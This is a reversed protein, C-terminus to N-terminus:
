QARVELASNPRGIQAAALLAGRRRAERASLRWGGWPSPRGLVSWEQFAVYAVGGILLVACLRGNLSAALLARGLYEPVGGTPISNQVCHELLVAAVCVTVAIWPDRQRRPYMCAWGLALTILATHVVHGTQMVTWGYASGKLSSPFVMSLVPNVLLSFQGRGLSANENVAFGAAAWAGVLLLDMVAPRSDTRKLAVRLMLLIPLLKCLEETIPVWLGVALVSSTGLEAVVPRGVFRALGNVGLFGFLFAGAFARWNMTRIPAALASLLALTWVQAVADVLMLRLGAAQTIRPVFMCLSLAGLGLGVNSMLTSVRTRHASTASKSTYRWAAQLTIGTGGIVLVTAWAEPLAQLAGAAFAAISFAAAVGATIGLAIDSGGPTRRAAVNSNM